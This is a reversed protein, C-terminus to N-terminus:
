GEAISGFAADWVQEPPAGIDLSVAAKTGVTQRAADPTEPM